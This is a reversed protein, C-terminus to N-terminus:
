NGISLLWSFWIWNLHFSDLHLLHFYISSIPNQPISIFFLFHFSFSLFLFSQFPFLLINIFQFYFENFSFSFSNILFLIIFYFLFLSYFPIFYAIFSYLFVSSYFVTYLSDLRIDLQIKRRNGFPALQTSNSRFIKWSSLASHITYIILRPLTHSSPLSHFLKTQFIQITTTLLIFHRSIFFFSIFHSSIM